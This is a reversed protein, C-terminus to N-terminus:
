KDIDKVIQEIRWELAEIYSILGVGGILGLSRAKARLREIEEAEQLAETDLRFEKLEEKHDEFGETCEIDWCPDELWQTKLENIEKRTKM